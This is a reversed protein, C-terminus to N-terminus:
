LEQEVMEYLRALVGMAEVIEQQIVAVGENHNIAHAVEGVEETVANLLIEPTRDTAGWKQIAVEREADIRKILGYNM